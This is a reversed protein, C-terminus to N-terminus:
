FQQHWQLALGTKQKPQVGNLNHYVPVIIEISARQDGFYVDFATSVNIQQGGYNKPNTIGAPYPFAGPVTIEDDQGSIDQWNIYSLKLQPDITSWGEYKIWASAAYKNGLRYDRDNKGFRLKAYLNGGVTYNRMVHAVNIGIPMDFTGSGLQMTYPLQQDGHARPTDGQEDISGTPLTVGLSLSIHTNAKKYVQRQYNISLDGLGHTAINFEDYGPVISLHDTDQEIYPISLNVTSKDDVGFALNFVLTQQTIVTPLIPYNNDTRDEPPQFLVDDYSLSNTGSMYGDLTERKFLVGAQFGFDNADDDISMAYLDQLSLDAMEAPTNAFSCTSILAPIVLALYQSCDNNLKM